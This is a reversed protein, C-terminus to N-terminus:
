PEIEKKHECWYSRLHDSFQRAYRGRAWRDLWSFLDDRSTTMILTFTSVAQRLQLKNTSLNRSLQLATDIAPRPFILYDALRLSQHRLM